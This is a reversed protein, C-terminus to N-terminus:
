AIVPEREFVPALAVDLMNKRKLWNGLDHGEFDHPHLIVNPLRGLREADRCDGKHGTGYHIHIESEPHERVIPLLDLYDGELVESMRTDQAKFREVAHKTLLTQPSFAVIKSAKLFAGFMIAAFGGASTGFCRLDNKERPLVQALVDCTSPVDHSLGLLGRQYWAQAHDKVFYTSHGYKASTQFFEPVPMSLKLNLGSFAVITLESKGDMYEIPAVSSFPSNADVVKLDLKNVAASMLAFTKRRELELQNKLFGIKTELDKFKEAIEPDM